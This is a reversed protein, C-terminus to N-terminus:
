SAALLAQEAISLSCCFNENEDDNENSVRNGEAFIICWSLPILLIIERRLLQFIAFLKTSKYSCPFRM